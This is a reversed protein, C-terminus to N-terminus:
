IQIRIIVKKNYQVYRYTNTYICVEIEKKQEIYKKSKTTYKKGLIDDGM